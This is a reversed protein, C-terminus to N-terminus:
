KSQEYPNYTFANPHAALIKAAPQSLHSTVFPKTHSELLATAIGFRRLTHKVYVYHVIEPETVAYGYISSPYDPDCAVIITSKLILNTVYAKHYEFYIDDSVLPVSSRYSKLWSSLIFNTDEATSRRFDIETM